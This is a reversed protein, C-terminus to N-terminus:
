FLQEKIYNVPMQHGTWLEFAKAGQWLMMGIGTVTKCGASNAMQLLKTHLPAYVTESVILDPRLYSINPILCQDELPHMGVGSTNTLIDTSEIETRLIDLNAIDYVNAKCNSDEMQENIIYANEVARDFFEDKQNFITLEALGELAAQMAIATGAGGSGLLVMKKGHVDVGNEKLNQLYGKGDTNFGILKGNENLVTNVARAYKASDDLEDLLPLIKTKNPMSVNFGKLNLARFGTVVDALQADGVEFALYAYNLGLYRIAMNHMAPSKSHGIPTAILGLLKTKGDIRGLDTSQNCAIPATIGM